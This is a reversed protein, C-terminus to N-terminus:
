LGGLFGYYSRGTNRSDHWKSFRVGKLVGHGGLWGM